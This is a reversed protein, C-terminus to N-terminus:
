LDSLDIHRWPEPLDAQPCLRARQTWGAEAVREYARDGNLQWTTNQDVHEVWGGERIECRERVQWRGAGAPTITALVCVDHSGALADGRFLTLTAHSAEGCATDSAVYFGVRLSLRDASAALTDDGTDPSCGAALMLAVPVLLHTRNM